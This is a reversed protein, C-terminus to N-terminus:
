KVIPQLSYILYYIDLTLCLDSVRDTYSLYFIVTISMMMM